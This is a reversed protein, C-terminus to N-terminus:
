TDESETSCSLPSVELYTLFLLFTRVTFTFSDDEEDNLFVVNEGERPDFSEDNNLVDFNNNEPELIEVDPPEPPPRPFSLNDFHSSEYEPLSYNAHTTTSGSRTDETHDSFSEFEPLSKDSFSLSTISSDSDM